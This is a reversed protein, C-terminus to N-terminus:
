RKIEGGRGAEEVAAILGDLVGNMITRVGEGIERTAERRFVAQAQSDCQLGATCFLLIALLGTLISRCPQRLRRRVLPTM